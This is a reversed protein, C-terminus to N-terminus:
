IQPPMPFLPIAVEVEGAAVMFQLEQQQKAELEAAAEGELSTLFWL